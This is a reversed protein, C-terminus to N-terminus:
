PKNCYLLYCIILIQKHNSVGQVTLVHVPVSSCPVIATMLVYCYELYTPLKVTAVDPGADLVKSGLQGTVCCIIAFYYQGILLRYDCICYPLLIGQKERGGGLWLFSTINIAM